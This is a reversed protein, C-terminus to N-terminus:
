RKEKLQEVTSIAEEQKETDEYKLHDKMERRRGGINKEGTQRSKRDLEEVYNKKGLPKKYKKQRESKEEISSRQCNQESITEEEFLKFPRYPLM